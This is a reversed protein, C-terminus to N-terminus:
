VQTNNDSAQTQDEDAQLDEVACLLRVPLQSGNLEVQAWITLAWMPSQSCALNILM